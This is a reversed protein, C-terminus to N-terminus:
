HQHPDVPQIYSLPMDTDCMQLLVLEDFNLYHQYQLKYNLHLTGDPSIGPLKLAVNDDAINTLSLSKGCNETSNCGLM